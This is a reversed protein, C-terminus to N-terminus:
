HSVCRSSLTKFVRIVLCFLVSDWIEFGNWFLYLSANIAWENEFFWYWRLCRPMKLMDSEDELLRLKFFWLVLTFPAVIYKFPFPNFILEPLKLTVPFFRHVILFWEFLLLILRFSVIITLNCWWNIIPIWNILFLDIIRFFLDLLVLVLQYQLFKFPLFNPM